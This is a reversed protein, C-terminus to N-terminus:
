AHKSIVRAADKKLLEYKKAVEACKLDSATLGCKARGAGKGTFEFWDM